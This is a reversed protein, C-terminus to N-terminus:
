EAVEGPQEAASLTVPSFAIEKVHVLFTRGERPRNEHFKYFIMLVAHLDRVGFTM